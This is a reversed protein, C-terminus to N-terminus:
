RGPTYTALGMSFKGLLSPQRLAAVPSGAGPAPPSLDHKSSPVRMRVDLWYPQGLPYNEHATWWMREVPDYVRQRAIEM